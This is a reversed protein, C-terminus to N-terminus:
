EDICDYVFKAVAEKNSPDLPASGTPLIRYCGTVPLGDQLDYSCRDGVPPYVWQAIITKGDNKEGCAILKAKGKGEIIKAPTAMGADNIALALADFDCSFSSAPVETCLSRNFDWIRNDDFCSQIEGEFAIEVESPACSTDAGGEAPAPPPPPTEAVADSDFDLEADSAVEVKEPPAGSSDGSFSSEEDTCSFLFPVMCFALLASLRRM